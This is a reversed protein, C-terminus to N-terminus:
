PHQGFVVGIQLALKQREKSPHYGLVRVQGASPVLIGTLMKVTTSKGAGNEGILGGAEGENIQFSIGKVAEHVSKRSAFIGRFAGLLGPEKINRTYNKRLDQADIALM